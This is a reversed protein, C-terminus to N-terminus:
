CPVNTPLYGACFIVPLAPYKPFRPDSASLRCMYFEAGRDSEIQRSHQCDLCLGIRKRLSEEHDETM